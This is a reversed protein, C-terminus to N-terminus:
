CCVRVRAKSPRQERPWEYFIECCNFDLLFHVADFNCQACKLISSDAM